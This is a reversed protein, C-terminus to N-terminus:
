FDYIASRIVIYILYSFFLSPVFPGHKRQRILMATIFLAMAIVIVFYGGLIGIVAGISACLKVDGGGMGDDIISYILMPIGVGFFGYLLGISTQYGMGTGIVAVLSILM